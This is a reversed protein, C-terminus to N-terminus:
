LNFSIPTKRGTNININNRTVITKDVTCNMYKYLVALRMEPIKNLVYELQINLNQLSVIWESLLSVLLSLFKWLVFDCDNKQLNYKFLYILM